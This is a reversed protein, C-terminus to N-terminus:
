SRNTVANGLIDASQNNTIKNLKEVVGNGIGAAIVELCKASGQADFTNETVTVTDTLTAGDERLSLCHAGSQTNELFCWKVTGNRGGKVLMSTISGSRCIVNTVTFGDAKIVLSHDSGDFVGSDVVVSEADIGILGGHGSTSSVIPNGTIM